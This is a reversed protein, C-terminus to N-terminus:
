VKFKIKTGELLHRWNELERIVVLMEKDHIKYNRETKNLSKSLFAVLRWRGDECEMSLVGGTAYDSTNVEIRMKKDLNPAALVLKKTFREKLEKFAGEQKETWEWKQDKKVM